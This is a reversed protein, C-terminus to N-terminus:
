QKQNRKRNIEEGWNLLAKKLRMKRDLPNELLGWRCFMHILKKVKEFYATIGPRKDNFLEKKEEWTALETIASVKEEWVAYERKLAEIFIQILGSVWLTKSISIGFNPLVYGEAKENIWDFLTDGIELFSYPIQDGEPADWSVRKGIHSDTRQYVSGIAKELEQLDKEGLVEFSIIKCIEIVAKDFLKEDEPKQGQYPIQDGPTGSFFEGTISM